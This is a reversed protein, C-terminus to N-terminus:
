FNIWSFLYKRFKTCCQHCLNLNLPLYPMGYIFLHGRWMCFYLELHVVVVVINIGDIFHAEHGYFVKPFPFCVYINVCVVGVFRFRIVSFICKIRFVHLDMYTFIEDEERMVLEGEGGGGCFSSSTQM